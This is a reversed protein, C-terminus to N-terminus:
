KKSLRKRAIEAEKTKPFNKVLKKFVLNATTTDNIKEFTLAQQLMASPVKNGKPYGNIVKQYALIAEEYKALVRYCEGIWFHANDALDSTPYLTLFNKFGAMAEEYRDDRYYGLARDYTESETLKKEQSTSIDKKQTEQVPLVREPGTTKTTVSPKFRLSSEVKEIRPKLEDLMSSLEKMKSVMADVNTTDEEIAGKLLHSNEEIKGTLEQIKDKIELLDAEVQALHLRISEQDKNLRGRGEDLNKVTEKQVSEYANIKEEFKKLSKEFRKEDKKSQRYLANVQNNLYIIDKQSACSTLFFIVVSFFIFFKIGITAM